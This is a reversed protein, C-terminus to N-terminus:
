RTGGVPSSGAGVTPGTLPGPGTTVDPAAPTVWAGAVRRVEEAYTRMAADDAPGAPRLGYWIESFVDVAARLPPALSARAQGAAAALEMVTWGPTHPLVGREILDRVMGRLRERVAEKFRGAAALQDATLLLVEAPLDPLEDAPLDVPEVDVPARRRRRWRLRWRLAGPRRRGWRPRPTRSRNKDGRDRIRWSRIWDFWRPWFYWLLSVLGAVAVSALAVLPLPVVDFLAAMLETWFRTM